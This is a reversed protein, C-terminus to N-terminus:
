GTTHGTTYERCEGMLVDVDLHDVLAGALVVDDDTYPVLVELLGDTGDVLHEDHASFSIFTECLDRLASAEPVKIM